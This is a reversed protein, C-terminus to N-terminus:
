SIEKNLFLNEVRGDYEALATIAAKFWCNGLAGQRIDLPRIHESGFLSIAESSPSNSARRWEVDDSVRPVNAWWPYTYDDFYLADNTPFATDVYDASSTRSALDYFNTRGDKLRDFAYSCSHTMSSDQMSQILLKTSLAEAITACLAANTLLKRQM